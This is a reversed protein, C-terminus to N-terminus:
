GYPKSEYMSRPHVGQWRSPKVGILEVTSYSEKLGDDCLWIELFGTGSLESLIAEDWYAFVDAGSCGRLQVVLISAMPFEWGASRRKTEKKYIAEQIADSADSVTMEELGNLVTRCFRKDPSDVVQVLEVGFTADDRQVEFDPRERRRVARTNLGTIRTYERLFFELDREECEKKGIDQESMNRESLQTQALQPNACGIENGSPYCPISCFRGRLPRVEKASEVPRGFGRRETILRERM